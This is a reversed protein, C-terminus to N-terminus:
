VCVVWAGICGVGSDGGFCDRPCFGVFTFFTEYWLKKLNIILYDKMVVLVFYALCWLRAINPLLNVESWYLFM